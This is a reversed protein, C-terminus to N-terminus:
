ALDRERNTVSSVVSCTTDIVTKGRRRDKTPEKEGAAREYASREHQNPQRLAGGHEADRTLMLDPAHSGYNSKGFALRAMRPAGERGECNALLAVWRAADTLGSVGRAAGTADADADGSRAAKSSHHALLVTPNGPMKTLQEFAQVLRTAANNDKETDAGAFRALPDFILLSWERSGLLAKYGDIVEARVQAGDYGTTTIAVNQGALALPFIRESVAQRGDDDLQAIKAAHYIRRRVEDIEEEALVLLVNGPVDVHYQGFWPRGTAVSVALQSLAWSKGAGGQGVLIGVRGAPLLGPNNARPGARLLYRRPPPAEDLWGGFDGVCRIGDAMWGPATSTNPTEELPVHGWIPKSM